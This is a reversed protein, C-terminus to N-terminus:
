FRRVTAAYVKAKGPGREERLGPFDLGDGLQYGGWVWVEPTQRATGRELMGEWIRESDPSM